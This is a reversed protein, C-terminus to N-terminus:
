LKYKIIECKDFGSPEMGDSRPKLPALVMM